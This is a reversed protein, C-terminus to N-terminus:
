FSHKHCVRKEFFFCARTISKNQVVFAVVVAVIAFFRVLPMKPLSFRIITADYHFSSLKM